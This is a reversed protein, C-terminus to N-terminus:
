RRHKNRLVDQLSRIAGARSSPADTAPSRFPNMKLAWIFDVKRAMDHCGMCTLSVVCQDQTQLFTEMTTNATARDGRLACDYQPDAGDVGQLPAFPFGPWQTMILKYNQWVSGISAFKEQWLQNAVLVDHEIKQLREVQFARPPDGPGAAGAPRPIRFDPDPDDTMSTGPDGNHFTYNRGPPDNVEPVNDVHEFTAWIWQPRSPTKYVVHLGVLGVRARRCDGREPHQVWADRFYFRSPDIYAGVEGREAPLEIWASKVTLAGDDHRADERVLTGSPAPPIGSVVAADYLKNDVIKQFAKENFAAQYRVYTRNQAVLVHGIDPEGAALNGFEHFSALVLEGRRLGPRNRCPSATSPYDNWAAPRTAGELLVEWDAKLTEFTRPGEPSTITKSTDPQGRREPSAPWVLFKLLQWSLSQFDKPRAQTEGCM